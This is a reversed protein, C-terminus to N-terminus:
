PAEMWSTVRCQISGCERSIRMEATSASIITSSSPSVPSTPSIRRAWGMVVGAPGGQGVKARFHIENLDFRVQWRQLSLLEGIRCGTEIAATMLAQLHPRAVAFLREWEEQELRRDRGPESVFLGKVAQGGKRFPIVSSNTASCRRGCGLSGLLTCTPMGVIVVVAWAYNLLWIRPSSGAIREPHLWVPRSWWLAWPARSPTGGCEIFSLQTPLSDTYRSLHTPSNTLLQKYCPL